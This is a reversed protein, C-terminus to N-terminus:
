KSDDSNARTAEKDVEDSNNSTAKDDGDISKVVIVEKAPLVIEDPDLKDGGFISLLAPLLLLGHAGGLVVTLALAKAFVVFVYTKTFSLSIVAIFTSVIGNFVSPGIRTMAKEVRQQATGTSVVFMHAIHASYDVALGCSLLIYITSVGSITLDWWHMFGVLDIISLVISLVVFVAIRPHPIMIAIILCVVGGTVALNQTLEAGIVGVEEWNSFTSTYPFPQNAEDIGGSLALLGERLTVLSAYRVVGNNTAALTLTASIRSGKIGLTTDCVLDSSLPCLCTPSADSRLMLLIHQARRIHQRFGVTSGVAQIIPVTTETASFSYHAATKGTLPRTLVVTRYRGVVTNSVLTVSDDVKVGPVHDGLVREMVNGEGDVIIVYTGRMETANFGTGFWVVPPGSLTITVLDAATDVAVDVNTLQDGASGRVAAPPVALMGCSTTSTADSNFTVDFTDIGLTGPPLRVASCGPPLGSSVSVTKNTVVGNTGLSAIAGDFCGAADLPEACQGVVQTPLYGTNAAPDVEDCFSDMWKVNGRQNAGVGFGAGGQFFALLDAYYADRDAYLGAANLATPNNSKTEDLFVQHWDGLGEVQDIIPSALLFKNIAVMEAQKDFYDMERTYVDFNVGGGFYETNLAFFDRSYADEPLFWEFEFNTEINIMGVVGAALLGTFFVLVIARPIGKSIAKGVKGCIGELIDPKCTCCKCCGQPEAFYHVEKPGCCCCMDWRNADARRANLLLVPLFITIQFIFCLIVGFGAMVCFWSLAPLVTVSGILFALADTVSTILISIGGYKAAAIVREEPTSKPNHLLFREYEGVIVFADDVGLGLLLLPLNGTLQTNFVGVLGGAGLSAFFSLLVILGSM